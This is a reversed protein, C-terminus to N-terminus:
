CKAVARITRPCCDESVEQPDSENSCDERLSEVIGLVERAALPTKAATPPSRVTPLLSSKQVQSQPRLVQQRRHGKRSNQKM